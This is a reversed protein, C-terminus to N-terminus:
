PKAVYNMANVPNGNVRVEFHLHPGTSAGTSGVLGIQQGKKVTQGVSVIYRTQHAYLTQYYNGDSAKGHNIIVYNGYGGANYKAVTVVGDAAAYIPKGNIGSGSIDTGTHTKSVGYLPHKRPGFPSTIIRYKSDLPWQFGLSTFILNSHSQLSSKIEKEIQRQAAEERALAAKQKDIDRNVAQVQSNADKLLVAYEKQADALQASVKKQEAQKDEVAKKDSEIKKIADALENTIRQDYASISKAMQAKALFDALNNAGLLLTVSARDGSMQISRMRKKFIEKNEEIEKNKQAIESELKNMETNYQHILDNCINIQKQLNNVQENYQNAITQKGAKDKNLKSIEANIEKQRAISDQLQQQLTDAGAHFTVMTPQCILLLALAGASVTRILSKKFQVFSM